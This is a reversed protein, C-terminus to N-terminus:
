KTKAKKISEERSRREITSEVMVRAQSRKPPFFKYIFLQQAIAILNSIIWYYGVAAPVQFSIYFSFFPMMLMMMMMQGNQQSAAPNNKKQIFTSVLSTGLSTILVVVSVAILGFGADAKHFSPTLSMDYVHGFVNLQMHQAYQQISTIADNTFVSPFESQLASVFSTDNIHQILELNLYRVRDLEYFNKLFDAVASVTDGSFGNISLVYSLPYYVAGIIGMLFVMQFAMPGCGMQMPNHGERAYLEQMEENLKQRDRPDPYKKQIKQIKPQLRQTKAMTKQQRINIPLLVVRTLVTFIFLALFYKNNVAGLLLAMCKGFFWYLPQFIGIGNYSTALLISNM